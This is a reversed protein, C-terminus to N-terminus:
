SFIPSINLDGELSEGFMSSEFDNRSLLCM